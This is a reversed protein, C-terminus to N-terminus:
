KKKRIYIDGNFTTFKFEPGGGNITGLISKEFSIRFKGGEKKGEEVKELSPKLAIDFDSFVDGRESKMRVNAKVDLPLTVDIDGNMTSFSMPKDPTVKALAVNLEGNLTDAIVTGSVNKLDVSGNLNNIEIDGSVNEVTINGENNSGLKLNASFPVQITLDVANKWSATQVSVLNDQEEVELGTTVAGSIRKLGAAKEASKKQEDKEGIEALAKRVDENISKELEEPPPPPPPVVAARREARGTRETRGSLSKERVKAEVIIDKGEYGKVTISGRMLEAEIRAIKGPTSLPVVVRDVRQEEAFALVAVLALVALGFFRLQKAKLAEEM